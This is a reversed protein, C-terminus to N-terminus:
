SRQLQFYKCSLPQVEVAPFFSKLKPSPSPVQQALHLCNLWAYWSTIRCGNEGVSLYFTCGKFAMFPISQFALFLNHVAIISKFFFVLFIRSM